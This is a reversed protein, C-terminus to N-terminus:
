GMKRRQGPILEYCKMAMGSWFSGVLHGGLHANSPKCHFMRDIFPHNLPNGGNSSVGMYNMNCKKKITNYGYYSSYVSCPDSLTVRENRSNKNRRARAICPKKKAWKRVWVPKGAHAEQEKSLTANRPRMLKSRDGPPEQNARRSHEPHEPVVKVKAQLEIM